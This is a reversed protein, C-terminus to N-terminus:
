YKQSLLIGDKDLGYINNVEDLSIQIIFLGTEDPIFQVEKNSELVIKIKSIRKDNCSGYIVQYDFETSSFGGITVLETRTRKFVTGGVWFLEKYFSTQILENETAFLYIRGDETKLVKSAIM